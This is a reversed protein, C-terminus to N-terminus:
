FSNILISKKSGGHDGYSIASLDFNDFEEIKIMYGRYKKLVKKYDRETINNRLLNSKTEIELM